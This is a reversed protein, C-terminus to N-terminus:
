QQTTFLLSCRVTSFLLVFWHKSTAQLLLDSFNKFSPGSLPQADSGPLADVSATYLINMREGTARGYWLGAWLLLEGMIGLTADVTYCFGQRAALWWSWQGYLLLTVWVNHFVDVFSCCVVCCCCNFSGFVLYVVLIQNIRSYFPM